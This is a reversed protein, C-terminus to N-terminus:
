ADEMRRAAREESMQSLSGTKAGRTSRKALIRAPSGGIQLDGARREDNSTQKHLPNGDAAQTITHLDRHDLLQM